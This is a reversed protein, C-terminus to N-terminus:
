ILLLSPTSARGLIAEGLETVGPTNPRTNDPSEGFDYDKGGEGTNLETLVSSSLETTTGPDTMVVKKKKNKKTLAPYKTQAVWDRCSSTGFPIVDDLDM